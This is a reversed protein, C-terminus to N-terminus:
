LFPHRRDSPRSQLYALFEPPLGSTSIGTPFSSNEQNHQSSTGPEASPRWVRWRTDQGWSHPYPQDAFGSAIDQSPIINNNQVNAARARSIGHPERDEARYSAAAIYSAISLARPRVSTATPPYPSSPTAPPVTQQIVHGGLGHGHGISTVAPPPGLPAVSSSGSGPTPQTSRQQNSGDYGPVEVSFPATPDVFYAMPLTSFSRQEIEYNRPESGDFIHINSLDATPGGEMGTAHHYFPMAESNSRYSASQLELNRFVSNLLTLSSGATSQQLLNSLLQHTETTVRNVIIREATFQQMHEIIAQYAERTVATGFDSYSDTSPQHTNANLWNGNEINRCNPCQM